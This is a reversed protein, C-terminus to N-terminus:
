AAILAVHRRNGGGAACAHSPDPATRQSPGPRLSLYDASPTNSDARAGPPQGGRRRRSSAVTSSCTAHIVVRW